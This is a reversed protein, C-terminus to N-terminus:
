AAAAEAKEAKQVKPQVMVRAETIESGVLRGQIIAAVADPGHERVLAIARRVSKAALDAFVTGHSLRITPAVRPKGDPVPVDLLEAPDIVAVVKLPGRATVTPM